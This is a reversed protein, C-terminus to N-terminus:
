KPGFPKPFPNIRLNIPPNFEKPNRKPPKENLPKPFPPIKPGFFSLKKM